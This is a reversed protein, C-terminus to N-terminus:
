REASELSVDIGKVLGVFLQKLLLYYNSKTLSPMRSLRSNPRELLTTQEPLWELTSSVTNLPDPENNIWTNLLEKIAARYLPGQSENNWELCLFGHAM